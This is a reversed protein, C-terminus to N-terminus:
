SAQPQAETEPTARRDAPSIDRHRFLVQWVRMAAEFQIGKDMKSTGERRESFHIPVEYVTYGLKETVYCMEAQFIYGNSKILDPNIGQLVHNNWVKFGATADKTKTRLIIYIYIRNAWWSLLKRYWGWETDLSGGKAYRSGVVVDYEDALAVMEPLKDPPHSFDCDMQIIKDAGMDLAVKYGHLYAKGLGQKGPRHLVHVQDPFREALKDAIEGTGDPSNDDIVLIELGDISLQLLTLAMRSLNEAENYTPLLVVIKPMLENWGIRMVSLTCIQM